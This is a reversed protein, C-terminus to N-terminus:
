EGNSWTALINAGRDEFKYGMAGLLRELPTKGCKIWEIFMTPHFEEISKIGGALVDMEMGEVDIKIFDLRPLELSDISVLPVRVLSKEEYSIAQGIFEVKGPRWKYELSGFSALKGYDPKPIDLWGCHDGVAAFRADVNTLNNLVINGCLAYFVPQQAEFAIVRGSSGFELVRAMEVTLVGINAGCDIVVMGGPKNQYHLKGLLEKIMGVEEADYSGTSMIQHGVGYAGKGPLHHADLRNIIMTGHNSGVLVWPKVSM